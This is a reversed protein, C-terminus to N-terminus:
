FPIRKGSNKSQLSFYSLLILLFLSFLGIALDSALPSLGLFDEWFYDVFAANLGLLIVFVMGFSRIRIHSIKSIKSYFLFIVSLPIFTVFFLLSQLFGIIQPTNWNITKILGVSEVSPYFSISLTFITLGLGCISLFLFGWLPNIKPFIFYLVLSAIVACALSELFITHVLLLKLLFQNEAFLLSGIGASLFYIVFIGVFCFLLKSSFSKKANYAQWLRYDLIAMVFFGFLEVIATLTIIM